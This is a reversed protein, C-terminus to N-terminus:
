NVVQGADVDVQELRRAVGELGLDCVVLATELQHKFPLFVVIVVKVVIVVEGEEVVTLEGSLKYSYDGAFQHESRNCSVFLM